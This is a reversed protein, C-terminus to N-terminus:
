GDAEAGRRLAMSLLDVLERYRPERTTTAIERPRPLDVEVTAEIRGPRPSMVCVRDALFVAEAVDHTVFLVTKPDTELIKLLWGQMDQRTLADLSAFPEDLLLLDRGTLFTRLLAARQRMGGSLQSPWAEGFGDLGFRVLEAAAAARADERSAGGLRPGLGANDLVDVWPMLLDAQPMYGVEGGGSVEGATPPDLGAVLDLLTSKGCGSPGVVAVLEGAAVELDIGDLATVRTGDASRPPFTRTLGAIRLAAPPV